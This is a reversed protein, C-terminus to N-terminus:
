YFVLKDQFREEALILHATSEKTARLACQPYDRRLGLGRTRLVLLRKSTALM